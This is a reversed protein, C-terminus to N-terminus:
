MRRRRRRRRASWGGLRDRTTAGTPNTGDGTACGSKATSKRQCTMGSATPAMASAAAAFHLSAFGEDILSSICAAPRHQCTGGRGSYGGRFIRALLSAPVHPLPGPQRKPNVPPDLLGVGAIKRPPIGGRSSSALAKPEYDRDTFEYPMTRLRVVPRLEIPGIPIKTSHPKGEGPEWTNCATM